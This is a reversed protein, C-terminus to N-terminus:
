SCPLTSSHYTYKIGTNIYTTSVVHVFHLPQGVVHTNFVIAHCCCFVVLRYHVHYHVHPAVVVVATVVAFTVASNPWM